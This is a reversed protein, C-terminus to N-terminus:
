GPSCVRGPPGRIGGSTLQAARFRQCDHHQATTIQCLTKSGLLTTKFGLLWRQSSCRGAWGLRAEGRLRGKAALRGIGGVGQERRRAELAM